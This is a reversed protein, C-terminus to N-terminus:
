KGEEGGREEEGRRGEEGGREEEGRREEGGRRETYVNTTDVKFQTLLREAYGESGETGDLGDVHGPVAGCHLM